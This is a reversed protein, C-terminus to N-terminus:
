LWCQSLHSVVEVRHISQGHKGCMWSGLCTGLEAEEPVATGGGWWGTGKERAQASNPDGTTAPTGWAKSRATGAASLGVAGWM